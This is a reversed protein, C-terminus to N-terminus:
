EFHVSSKFEKWNLPTSLPDLRAQQKFVPPNVLQQAREGKHVKYVNSYSAQQLHTTVMNMWLLGPESQVVPTTTHCIPQIGFGRSYKRSPTPM